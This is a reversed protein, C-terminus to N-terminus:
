KRKLLRGLVAGYIVHAALMVGARARRDRHAPPLVDIAPVWGQYGGIWILVGFAAGWSPTRGRHGTVLAFMVGAFAGYVGHSILAAADAVDERLDPTLRDVIMRPPLGHMVGLREAVIMLASMPATAVLGAAGGGLARNLRSGVSNRGDSEGLLRTRNLEVLCRGGPEAACQGRRGVLLGGHAIIGPGCPVRSPKCATEPRSLM